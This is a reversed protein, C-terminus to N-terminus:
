DASIAQIWVGVEPVFKVRRKRELAHLTAKVTRTDLGTEEALDRLSAPAVSLPKRGM